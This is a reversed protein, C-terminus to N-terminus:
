RGGGESLHAIHLMCERYKGFGEEAGLCQGQCLATIELCDVAVNVFSQLSQDVYDRKSCGLQDGGEILVIRKFCPARIYLYACLSCRLSQM